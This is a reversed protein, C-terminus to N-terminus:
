KAGRFSDWTFSITCGGGDNMRDIVREGIFDILEEKTQNSIIITPKMREYRTNIIEFIILKETDSGFQVGVEDVILLDPKTYYSIVDNETEDSTKSWTSKFARAIRLATTFVASSQHNKVVHKAIALALHNKGTGPKGCMVLGGGNALREPWKDAYLRCVKLARESENTTTKYNDLTSSNFREPVNLSEMLSKIKNDLSRKEYDNQEKFLKNLEENLCQPCKTKLGVMRIPKDSSRQRAKYPGHLDCNEDVIEVKTNAIFMPPKTAEEIKVKLSAIKEQYM